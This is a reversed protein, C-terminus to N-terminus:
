FGAKKMRAGVAIPAAWIRQFQRWAKATEGKENRWLMAFPMVGMKVVSQLRREAAERTDKPYGILVYCSMKYYKFGARRLRRAALLLHRYDDPTDYALYIRETKISLLKDVTWNDILRAELGGTFRARRNQRGLMEFVAEIHKRSCQLLNSDVVNWGNRIVLERIGGERRPVHCFWCKNNCGRSTIVYGEKLYKGPEFEGGVDNYAPGGIRVDYGAEDWLDGLRQAKEKDYTFSCSVHVLQGSGRGRPPGFFCNEDDPCGKTKRPFVRILNM